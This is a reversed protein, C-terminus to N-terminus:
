VSPFASTSAMMASHKSVSAAVSFLSAVVGARTVVSFSSVAGTTLSFSVGETDIIEGAGSIARTTAVDISFKVRSRTLEASLPTRPAEGSPVGGGM